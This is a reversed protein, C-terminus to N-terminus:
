AEIRHKDPVNRAVLRYANRRRKCDSFHQSLQLGLSAIGDHNAITRADKPDKRLSVCQSHHCHSCIKGNPDPGGHCRLWRYCLHAFRKGIDDLRHRSPAIAAKGNHIRRIRLDSKQLHRVNKMIQGFMKRLNYVVQWRHRMLGSADAFPCLTISRYSQVPTRKGTSSGHLENEIRLFKITFVM